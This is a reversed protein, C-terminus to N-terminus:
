EVAVSSVLGDEPSLDAVTAVPASNPLELVVQGQANRFSTWVLPASATLDVFVEPAGERLDLSRIEITPSVRGTAAPQAARGPAAEVVRAPKSSTCGAILAFAMAVAPVIARRREARPTAQIVDGM